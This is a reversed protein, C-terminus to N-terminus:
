RGSKVADFEAEIEKSPAKTVLSVIVNVIIAVVFAPLLEYIAFAGGLKSIGFKWAFVLIAGVIEGDEEAVFCYEEFNLEVCCKISYDTFAKSIFEGVKENTEDIKKIIM